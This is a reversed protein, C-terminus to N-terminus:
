RLGEGKRERLTEPNPTVEVEYADNLKVKQDNNVAVTEISCALYCSFLLIEHLPVHVQPKQTVSRFLM